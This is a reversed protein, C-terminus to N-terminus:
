VECHVLIDTSDPLFAQPEEKKVEEADDESDFPDTEPVNETSVATAEKQAAESSWLIASVHSEWIQVRIRNRNRNRFLKSEVIRNSEIGSKAWFMSNEWIVALICFFGKAAWFFRKIIMHISKNRLIRKFLLFDYMHM